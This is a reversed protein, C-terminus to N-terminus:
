RQFSPRYEASYATTGYRGPRFPPDSSSTPDLSVKEMASGISDTTPRRMSLARPPLEDASRRTVLQAAGCIRLAAQGTVSRHRGTHATPSAALVAVAIQQFARICVQSRGRRSVVRQVPRQRLAVADAGRRNASGRDTVFVIRTMRDRAVRCGVVLRRHVAEM